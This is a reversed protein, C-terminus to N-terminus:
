MSLQVIILFSSQIPLYGNAGKFIVSCASHCTREARQSARLITELWVLSLAHTYYGLYIVMYCFVISVVAVSYLLPHAQKKIDQFTLVLVVHEM